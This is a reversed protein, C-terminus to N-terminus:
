VASKWTEFLEVEEDIQKQDSSNECNPLRFNFFMEEPNYGDAIAKKILDIRHPLIKKGPVGVM